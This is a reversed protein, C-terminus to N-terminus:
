SKADPKQKNLYPLLIVAVFGSIVILFFQV